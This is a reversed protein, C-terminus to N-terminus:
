PWRGSPIFIRRFSPHGFGNSRTAVGLLAPPIPNGESNEKLSGRFELYILRSRINRRGSKEGPRSGEIESTRPKVSRINGSLSPGNPRSRYDAGYGAM